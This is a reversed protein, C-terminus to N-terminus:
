RGLGGTTRDRMMFGLHRHFLPDVSVERVNSATRFEAAEDLSLLLTYWVHAGDLHRWPEPEGADRAARAAALSEMSSVPFAPDDDPSDGGLGPRYGRDTVAAEDPLIRRALDREATPIAVAAVNHRHRTVGDVIVTEFPVVVNPTTM